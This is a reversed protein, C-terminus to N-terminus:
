TVEKQQLQNRKCDIAFGSYGVPHTSLYVDCTMKRMCNVGWLRHAYENCPERTQIRADNWRWTMWSSRKITHEKNSGRETKRRTERRRKGRRKKKDVQVRVQMGEEMHVAGLSVGAAGEGLSSYQVRAIYWGGWLLHLACIYRSVDRGTYKPQLQSHKHIHLHFDSRVSSQPVWTCVWSNKKVFFDASAFLRRYGLDLFSHEVGAM